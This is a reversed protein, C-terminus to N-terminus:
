AHQQLGLGVATAGPLVGEGGQAVELVPPDAPPVRGVDDAVIPVASIASFSTTSVDTKVLHHNNTFIAARLSAAHAIQAEGTM